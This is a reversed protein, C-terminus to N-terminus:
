KHKFTRYGTVNNYKNQFNYLQALTVTVCKMFVFGRNVQFKKEVFHVLVSRIFKSAYIIFFLIKNQFCYLKIDKSILDNTQFSIICTM